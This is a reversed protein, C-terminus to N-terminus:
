KRKSHKIIYNFYGSIDPIYYSLILMIMPIFSGFFCWLEGINYNFFKVSLLLFSFTALFLILAYNFNMMYFINITFMVIYFTSSFYRIWPWKLHGKYTSTTLKSNYIFTIYKFIFYVLYLCNLINVIFENKNPSLVDLKCYLVKILYLILPQAANLIPGIITTIKNIGLNNNIDVWFLFDMLQILSIFILFIGAVTNEKKYKKNGYKILLISFIIGITFTM